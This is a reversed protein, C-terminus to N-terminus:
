QWVFSSNRLKFDRYAQIFDDRFTDFGTRFVKNPLWSAWKHITCCLRGNKQRRVDFRVDEELLDEILTRATMTLIMNSKEETEVDLLVNNLLTSFNMEGAYANYAALTKILNDLHMTVPFADMSEAVIYLTGDSDLIRFTHHSLKVEVWKRLNRVICDKLASNDAAARFASLVSDLVVNPCGADGSQNAIMLYFIKWFERLYFHKLYREARHDSLCLCGHRRRILEKKLASVAKKETKDLLRKM